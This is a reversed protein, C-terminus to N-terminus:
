EAAEEVPAKGSVNLVTANEGRSLAVLEVGEPLKLDSLHLSQGGKINSLDVEIFKPLDAPLAIVDVANIVHSVKAGYLKVAASQEANIFHLAVKVHIKQQADIRQFDIHQVQQKFPHMQYDRVLVQEKKGDVILDLVSSHFAENKAAHYVANHELVISEAGQEGGYVVAPLKGERRLRRSAGTGLAERKAAILEYTM